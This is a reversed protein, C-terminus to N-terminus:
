GPPAPARPRRPTGPWAGCADPRPDAILLGPCRPRSRIRARPGSPKARMVASETRARLMWRMPRSSRRFASRRRFRAAQRSERFEPENGARALRSRVGTRRHRRLGGSGARLAASRSPPGASDARFRPRFGRRPGAAPARTNSFDLTKQSVRFLFLVAAGPARQCGAHDGAAAVPVRGAHSGQRDDAVGLEAWGSAALEVVQLPIGQNAFQINLTIKEGNPLERFGDGGTDAMGTEDLLSNAM